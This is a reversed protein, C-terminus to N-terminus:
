IRVLRKAKGNKPNIDVAVVEGKELDMVDRTWFVGSPSIRYVKYPGFKKSERTDSSEIIGCEFGRARYTAFNDLMRKDPVIFGLYKLQRDRKGKLEELEKLGLLKVTEDWDMSTYLGMFGGLRLLGERARARVFKKPVSKMFEDLDKFEGGLIKRTEMLVEVGRVGMFKIASLPMSIRDRDTAKWEDNSKNVHPPKIVIGAKVADIIYTQEQAHDVNLMAAYFAAPHHFKWWACEWAIMAYATSHAKNFSYNSHTALEDWLKGAEPFSLGHKSTAGGVFRARTREMKEVWAPDDPKSKTIVRRASDADGLTGDVTRRFIEM